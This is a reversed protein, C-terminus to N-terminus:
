KNGLKRKLDAVTEELKIIERQTAMQWADIEEHAKAVEGINFIATKMNSEAIELLDFIGFLDLDSSLDGTLREIRIRLKEAEEKTICRDLDGYIAAKRHWVGGSVEITRRKGDQYSILGESRLDALCQYVTRYSFNLKKSMEKASPSVGDHKLKYDVIENFVAKLYKKDTMM